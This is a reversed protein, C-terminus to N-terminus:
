VILFSISLSDKIPLCEAGTPNQFCPLSELQGEPINPRQNVGLPLYVTHSMEFSPSCTPTLPTSQWWVEMNNMIAPLKESTVM